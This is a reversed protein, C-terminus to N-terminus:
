KKKKLKNYDDIFQKPIEKADVWTAEKKDYGKWHVLYYPKRNVMKKDLLTYIIFKTIAEKNPPREDDKIVQLQSKTYSVNDIGDVLYMPPQGGRLSLQKITTPKVEWRIDGLRFGKGSEKINQLNRPEDAIVRVKTGVPLVEYSDPLGVPLVGNDSMKERATQKKKPKLLSQEKEHNILEVLEPLENIWDGILEESKIAIENSVMRKFLYYSLAYNVAEVCAQQRSRGTKKYVMDIHLKNFYNFFEGQFETGSDMEIRKPLKLFKSTKYIHLLAKLVEDANKTKLKEAGIYRPLALDVVSLCYKYGDDTPLFLLDVQHTWNQTPVDTTPVNLGKTENKPQKMLADVITKESENQKYSFKKKLKEFDM